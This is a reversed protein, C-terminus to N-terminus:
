SISCGNLPAMRVVFLPVLGLHGCMALKIHLEARPIYDPTNKIEVGYTARRSFFAISSMIAVLGIEAKTVVAM